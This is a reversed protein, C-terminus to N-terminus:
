RRPPSVSRKTSRDGWRRSLSQDASHEQTGGLSVFTRKLEERAEVQRRKENLSVGSAPKQDSATAPATFENLTFSIARRRVAKSITELKSGKSLEQTLSRAVEQKRKLDMDYHAKSNGRAKRDWIGRGAATPHQMTGKSSSYGSMHSPFRDDSLSNYFTDLVAESKGSLSSRSVSGRMLERVSSTSVLEDHGPQLDRYSKGFRNSSLGAMTRTKLTKAYRNKRAALSDSSAQVGIQEGAMRYEANLSAHTSTTNKKLTRKRKATKKATSPSKM